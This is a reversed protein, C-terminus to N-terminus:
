PRPLRQEVPPLPPGGAAPEALYYYATSSYDNALKNAHGHEISVHISKRFRIPDEIHYRYISQQRWWKCDPSGSYLLIGHYPATYEESPGFATNCWDETGTGHLSPPWPEGDIFIMDDGEGFWENKQREFIDIDLHAGCYIGDGTAELICYNDRNSRNLSRPDGGFFMKDRWEAAHDPQLANYEEGWGVTPNERRWQVHFYGAGELPAPSAYSEYDIYFYFPFTETGDNRVAIRASRKFPMPWWSNFGRGDQPSMQLVATTFNKRRAHGLGFFDGIPCEVSPQPCDDWWFMLVVRRLHDDNQFFMTNWIHRICGPGDIRAIEHQAGPEIDVWDRNGGTRDYSSIRKSRYDRLFPLGALGTANFM